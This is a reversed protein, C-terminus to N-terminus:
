KNNLINKIWQPVPSKPLPAMSHSLSSLSNVTGHPVDRHCDWCYRKNSYLDNFVGNTNNRSFIKNMNYEHCRICNQQVANKGEDKIFIVQPENRLTFIYAHRVGDKAKFFYKNFINNHPVHCDNCHTVDKHSSHSWTTYQPAMIHCNVCTKPNDSLYSVANSIYSIYLFLGTLVAMLIIVPIQWEKPPIWFRIFKKIV